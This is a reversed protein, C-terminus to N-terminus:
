IINHERKKMTVESSIIICALKSANLNRNFLLIQYIELNISFQSIYCKSKPSM